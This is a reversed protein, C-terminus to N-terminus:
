FDVAVLSSEEYNHRRKRQKKKQLWVKTRNSLVIRRSSQQTWAIKKRPKIKVTNQELSKVGKIQKIKTELHVDQREEPFSALSFAKRRLEPLVCIAALVSLVLCTEIYLDKKSQM